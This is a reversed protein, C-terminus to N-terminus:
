DDEKPGQNYGRPRYKPDVGDHKEGNELIDHVLFALWSGPNERALRLLASEYRPVAHKSWLCQLGLAILNSENPGLAFGKEYYPWAQEIRGLTCLVDGTYVHAMPWQPAIRLAEKSAAVRAEIEGRAGLMVSYNLHAKASNPSALRTSDWFALDDSYDLAHRRAQVAQFGLFATIFWASVRRKNWALLRSFAVALLWATGIAPLYWFREARVTPLLVAINSHPFYALPFWFLGLAALVVAGCEARLLAGLGTSAAGDTVTRRARREKAWGVVLWVGGAVLPALMALGGAVSGPSVVREPVPEEAYSYDGSLSWPFLVQILGRFYVGLAGAVRYPFDAEVLPNNIADHPLRPQQFWRLFEHLARRALPESDALPAALEAPLTVPFWRRRLYTYTVLALSAALLALAARMFRRPRRAHALPAIALAALAVLPVAVLASEKSFLGLLLGGCVGLPAVFVNARLALVALLVGMGGLVDALGVVGTVAETLTACALFCAGALWGTVRRGTFSFALTAVLAANVAHVVVNTMHPLWPQGQVMWELRWILNPLPRYSGISRGPPLGWFDTTFAAWFGLQGNVYPNALLAEQEDFIFNSLPSRVYILVSAILAPALAVVFTPDQEAFYERVFRVIRQWRAPAQAAGAPEPASQHWAETM